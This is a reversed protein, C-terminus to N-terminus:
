VEMTKELHDKKFQQLNNIEFLLNNKEEILQNM